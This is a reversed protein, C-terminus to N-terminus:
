LKVLNYEKMEASFIQAERRHCSFILMQRDPFTERLWKLATALRGEDYNVFSDDFFLPLQNEGSMFDGAALRLALYVQDMTGSSVQSLPILKKETNLFVNLNQDISLSSYIGGTIGAILDSARKNLYLGFSDRFTQSLEKMTDMAIDIAEIEKQLRDNEAVVNKLVAAEEKLTSLQDLEQELLWQTKKQETIAEENESRRELLRILRTDCESLGAASQDIADCVALLKGTEDKMHGLVADGEEKGSAETLLDGFHERIHALFAERAGEATKKLVSDRRFLVLIGALCIVALLSLITGGPLALQTYVNMANRSLWFAGGFLAAAALGLLACGAKRGGSVAAKEAEKREELLTDAKQEYLLIEERSAFGRNRLTQRDAASKQLLKERASQIGQRAEETERQTQSLENMRNRYKPEQLEAELRRIDSLHAAYDKAAEPVMQRSFSNRQDKLFATAKTINLAMNGTTNLNAIYNKLEEVMGADTASKLQGISVTNRFAAASLGGLMESLLAEPNEVFSGRTLDTIVLDTPSKLFNREIRYEGDGHKVTLTGGYAGDGFWPTHLAYGDTRSARGRAREQGYLMATLFAHITTKGAENGGYLINAGDTLDITRDHFKGFGRINLERIIM